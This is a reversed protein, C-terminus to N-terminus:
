RMASLMMLEMGIRDMHAPTVEPGDVLYTPILKDSFVLTSVSNLKRWGGPASQPYRAGM